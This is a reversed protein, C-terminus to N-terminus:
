SLGLASRSTLYQPYCDPNPSANDYLSWAKDGKSEYGGKGVLHVSQTDNNPILAALLLENSSMPGQVVRWLFGLGGGVDEEDLTGAKYGPVEDFETINGNPDILGTKPDMKHRTYHLDYRRGVAAGSPPLGETGGRRAMLVVMETQAGGYRTGALGVVPATPGCMKIGKCWDARPVSYKAVATAGSTMNVSMIASHAGEYTSLDLGWSSLVVHYLTGHPTTVHSAFVGSSVISYEGGPQKTGAQSEPFSAVKRITASEPDTAIDVCAVFPESEVSGQVAIAAFDCKSRAGEDGLAEVGYLYASNGKDDKVPLSKVPAGDSINRFVLSGKAPFLDEMHFDVLATWPSPSSQPAFFITGRGFSTRCLGSCPVPKHPACQVTKNSAGYGIKFTTPVLHDTTFDGFTYGNFTIDELPMQACAASVLAAHLM